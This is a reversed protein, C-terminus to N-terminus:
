ASLFGGNGKGKKQWLRLLPCSRQHDLLFNSIQFRILPHLHLLNHLLFH